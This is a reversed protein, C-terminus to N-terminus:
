LKVNLEEGTLSHFINQLHHLHKIVMHQMGDEIKVRLIFGDYDGSGDRVANKSLMLPRKTYFPANFIFGCRELWEPTLPVPHYLEEDYSSFDGRMMQGIKEGKNKFPSRYLIFNGVRLENVKM